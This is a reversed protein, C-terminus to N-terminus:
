FIEMKTNEDSERLIFDEIRENFEEKDSTLTFLFFLTQDKAFNLKSIRRNQSNSQIRILESSLIMRIEPKTTLHIGYDSLLIVGFNNDEEFNGSKSFQIAFLDKPILHHDEIQYEKCSSLFSIFQNLLEVSHFNAVINKKSLNIKCVTSNSPHSYIKLNQNMPLISVEKNTFLNIHTLCISIACNSEITKKAEIDMLDIQFLKENHQSIIKERQEELRKLKVEEHKLSLSLHHPNNKAGFIIPSITGHKMIAFSRQFLKLINLNQCDIYYTINSLILKTITSEDNSKIAVGIKFPIEISNELQNPTILTLGNQNMTIIKLIKKNNTSDSVLLKFSILNRTSCMQAIAEIEDQTTLINGSIQLSQSNIKEFSNQYTKFMLFTLLILFRQEENKAIFNFCSKQDIKLRLKKEEKKSFEMELNPNNSFRQELVEPNSTYNMKFKIKNSKIKLIAPVLAVSSILDVSFHCTQKTFNLIVKNRFSSLKLFDKLSYNQFSYNFQNLSM